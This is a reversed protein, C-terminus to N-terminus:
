RSRMAEAAAWAGEIGFGSVFGKSAAALPAPTLGDWQSGRVEVVPAGCAQVAQIVDMVASDPVGDTMLVVATVESALGGLARVIDDPLQWEIVDCGELVYGDDPLSGHPLLVLM